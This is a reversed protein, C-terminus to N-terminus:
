RHHAREVEGTPAVRQREIRKNQRRFRRIADDLQRDGVGIADAGRLEGLQAAGRPRENADRLRNALALAHAAARSVSMDLISSGWPALNIRVNTMPPAPNM